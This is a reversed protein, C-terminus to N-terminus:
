IECFDLESQQEKIVFFMKWVNLGDLTKHQDKLIREFEEEKKKREFRQCKQGSKWFLEKHTESVKVCQLDM